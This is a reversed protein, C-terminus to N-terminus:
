LFFSKYFKPWERLMNMEFYDIFATDCYKYSILGKNFKDYNSEILFKFSILNVDRKYYTKEYIFQFNILDNKLSINYGRSNYIWWKNGFYNRIFILENIRDKAWLDWLFSNFNSVYWNQKGGTWKLIFNEFNPWTWSFIFNGKEDVTYGKKNKPKLPTLKSLSWNYSRMFEEEKQKRLARDEDTLDKEPIEPKEMEELLDFWGMKIYRDWQEEPLEYDSVVDYDVNEEEPFARKFDFESYFM